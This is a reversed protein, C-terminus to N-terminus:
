SPLDRASAESLSPAGGDTARISKLYGSWTVQASIPTSDDVGAAALSAVFEVLDRVTVKGDAGVAEVTRGISM